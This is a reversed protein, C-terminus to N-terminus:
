DYSDMMKEIKQSIDFARVTHTLAGVSIYDVGTEAVERPARRARHDPALEEVVIDRPGAPREQREGVEACERGDRPRQQEPITLDTV